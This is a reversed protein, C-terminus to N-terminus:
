KYRFKLHNILYDILFKEIEEISHTSYCNLCVYFDTNQRDFRFVRYEIGVGNGCM